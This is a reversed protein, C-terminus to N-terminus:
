GGAPQFNAVIRDFDSRAADFDSARTQFYLSHGTGDVVFM